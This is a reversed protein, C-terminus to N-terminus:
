IGGGTKPQSPCNLSYPLSPPVRPPPEPWWSQLQQPMSFMWRVGLFFVRCVGFSGELASLYALDCPLFSFLNTQEMGGLTSFKTLTRLGAACPPSLHRPLASPCSSFRRQGSNSHNIEFGSCNRATPCRSQLIQYSLWAAAHHEGAM